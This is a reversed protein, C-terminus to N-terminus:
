SIKGDNMSNEPESVSDDDEEDNFDPTTVYMNILKLSSFLVDCVKQSYIIEM